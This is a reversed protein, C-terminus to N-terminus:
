SQWLNYFNNWVMASAGLVAANSDSLSSIMLKINGKYLELMTSEMAQQTYKMIFDGSKALGGFLIIAEPDSFLAFNALTRGLITGTERFIDIAMADGKVAADYIDKSTIEDVKINRLLSPEDSNRVRGKATNAIGTASCYTELCGKRGCACLRGNPDIIVHGLEGAVGHFGHLLKGNIIIGSGIGTGLTIMIFNKMGKACGYVMEGVAAANADNTLIVPIALREEFMKGLPIIIGKWPLNPAFDITGTYYNANPAGVGLGVCEWGDGIESMLAKAKASVADAFEDVTAFDRTKVSDCGILNGIKDVAGIVSNTGGIDLGLAYQKTKTM